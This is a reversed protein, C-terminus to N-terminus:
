HPFALYKFFNRFSTNWEEALSIQMQSAYQDPSELTNQSSCFSYRFQTALVSINLEMSQVEIAM